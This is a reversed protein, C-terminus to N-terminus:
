KREWFIKHANNYLINNLKMSSLDKALTLFKTKTSEIEIEPFDSGFLVKQDCMQILMKYDGELSTNIILELSYSINCYFNKYSRCLFFTDLVRHFGAHALIFTVDSYTKIHQEYAFPLLDTINVRSDILQYYGDVLLTIQHKNFHEWLYTFKPHCINIGQMRPHIKIGSFGNECLYDVQDTLNEKSFDLCGLAKFRDPYKKLIKSIFKNSNTGPMSILIGKEIKSNEFEGILREFSSNYLHNIWEGTETINVHSDIIKM